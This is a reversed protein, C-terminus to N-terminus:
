VKVRAPFVPRQVFASLTVYKLSNVTVPLYAIELEGRRHGSELIEQPGPRRLIPEVGALLTIATVRGVKVNISRLTPSGM